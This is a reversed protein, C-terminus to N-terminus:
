PLLLKATEPNQKLQERISDDLLLSNYKRENAYWSVTGVIMGGIVFFVAMFLFKDWSFRGRLWDFLTLTAIMWCSWLEAMRLSARITGEQRKVAWWKVFKIKRALRWDEYKKLLTSM